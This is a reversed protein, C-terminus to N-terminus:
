GAGRVAAIRRAFGDIIEVMEAPRDRHLSHGGELEVIDDDGLLSCVAQREPGVLASGQIIPVAGEMEPALVLMVPVRLGAMLDCLDWDMGARLAKAIEDVDCALLAAVSQDIDEDSWHPHAARSQQCYAAPDALAADRLSVIGGALLERDMGHAGPPDELVLASAARPHRGAIALAVVAGLSHGVLIDVHEPLAGLTGEVLAGVPDPPSSPRPGDGHGPLDVATVDWGREALAPAVKWWSGASSMVGHLLAISGLPGSQAPWHLSGPRSRESSLGSMAAWTLLLRAAVPSEAILM